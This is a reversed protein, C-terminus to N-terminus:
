VLAMGAVRRVRPLDLSFLPARTTAGSLRFACRKFGSEKEYKALYWCASKTVGAAADPDSSCEGLRAAFLKGLLEANNRVPARRASTGVPQREVSASPVALSADPDTAALWLGSNTGEEFM